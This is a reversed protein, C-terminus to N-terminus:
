VVEKIAANMLQPVKLWDSVKFKGYSIIYTNPYVVNFPEIEVRGTGSDGYFSYYNDPEIGDCAYILSYIRPDIGLIKIYDKGKYVCRSKTFQIDNINIDSLGLKEMILAPIFERLHIGNLAIASCPSIGSIEIASRFIKAHISGFGKGIFILRAANAIEEKFESLYKEKFEEWALDINLSEIWKGDCPREYVGYAENKFSTRNMLSKFKAGEQLGNPYIDPLYIFIYKAKRNHHINSLRATHKIYKPKKNKKAGGTMTTSNGPAFYTNISERKTYIMLAAILLIFVIIIALICCDM